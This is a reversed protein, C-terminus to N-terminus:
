LKINKCSYSPSCFIDNIDM